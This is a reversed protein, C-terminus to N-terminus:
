ADDNIVEILDLLAWVPLVAYGDCADAKGIRKIVAVPIQHGAANDAAQDVFAALKLTKQNKCEISLSVRGLQVALDDGAEGLPRTHVMAGAAELVNRVARSWSRGKVHSNVMLGGGM